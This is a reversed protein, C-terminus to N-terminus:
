RQGLLHKVYVLVERVTKYGCPVYVSKDNVWVDAGKPLQDRAYHLFYPALKETYPLLGFTRDAGLTTVFFGRPFPYKPGAVNLYLHVEQPDDPWWVTKIYPQNLIYVM